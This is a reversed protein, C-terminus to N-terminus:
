KIQQLVATRTSNEANNANHTIIAIGRDLFKILEEVLSATYM